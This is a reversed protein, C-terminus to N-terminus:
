LVVQTSYENKLGYGLFLCLFTIEQFAKPAKFLFFAKFFLLLGGCFCFLLFCKFEYPLTFLVGM